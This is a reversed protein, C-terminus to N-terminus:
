QSHMSLNKTQSVSKAFEGSQIFCKIVFRWVPNMIFREFAVDSYRSCAYLFLKRTPGMEIALRAGKYVLLKPMIMKSIVYELPTVSDGSEHPFASAIEQEVCGFVQHMWAKFKAQIEEDLGGPLKKLGAFEM